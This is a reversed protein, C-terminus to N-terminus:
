SVCRRGRARLAAGCFRRDPSVCLCSAPSVRKRMKPRRRSDPQGTSYSRREHRLTSGRM